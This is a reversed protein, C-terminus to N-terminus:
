GKLNLLCKLFSKTLFARCSFWSMIVSGVICLLVLFAKENGAYRNLNTILLPKVVQMIFYHVVPGSAVHLTGALGKQASAILTHYMDASSHM